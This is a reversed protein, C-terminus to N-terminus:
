RVITVGLPYLLDWEVPELETHAPFSPAHPAELLVAIYRARRAALHATKGCALIAHGGPYWYLAADELGLAIPFSATAWLEALSLVADIQCGKAGQDLDSHCAITPEHLAGDLL